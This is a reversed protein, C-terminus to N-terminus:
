HWIKLLFRKLIPSVVPSFQWFYWLFVAVVWVCIASQVVLSNSKKPLEPKLEVISLSCLITPWDIDVALRM